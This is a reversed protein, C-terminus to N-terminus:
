QLIAGVIGVRDVVRPLIDFVQAIDIYGIRDAIAKAYGVDGGVSHGFLTGFFDEGALGKEVGPCTEFFVGRDMKTGHKVGINIVECTEGPLIIDILVYLDVTNKDNTCFAFEIDTGVRRYWM